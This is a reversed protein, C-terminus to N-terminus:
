CGLTTALRLFTSLHEHYSLVRFVTQRAQKVVQCPIAVLVNGFAKFELGLLWAKETRGKKVEGESEPLRLAAWSKLNWALATMVRYAWNSELTSVPAKLAHLGNKLQQILNEQHCRDNASFVIEEATSLRDNTIYFFYRYQDCLWIGGQEKSINKRIVIMRYATKCATPKYNFEAVEEYKLRLKEYGRKIVIADKVHDPRQRPQTEIEYRLPRTLKKWAQDPLHEARSKMAKSCDYGFIFQIRPNANWRDLHETQSFDTDGRFLVKVFGARFCTDAAKDLAAAAGEHSPRNGPRNVIRLVERTNALTVLCPHYGWTSNYSIDMGEKCAGTTGVLSGDVDIKAQQFFSVPQRQWLKIRVDDYVDQLTNIDDVRFRRTFDGATTPDPIREAGLADLYNVDNRRLEIDQMHDGNCLPNFAFNLVHDSEHYPLHIKLVHLRTDIADVLGIDKALKHLLPIGGFGIGTTRQSLDYRFVPCGRFIPGSCDPLKTKDLRRQIEQKRAALQRDRHRQHRNRKARHKERRRQTKHKRATCKDRLKTKM